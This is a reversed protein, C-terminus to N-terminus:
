GSPSERRRSRGEDEDEEEEEDEKRGYREHREGDSAGRRERKECM